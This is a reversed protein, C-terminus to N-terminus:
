NEILRKGFFNHSTLIKEKLFIEFVVLVLFYLRLCLFNVVKLVVVSEYFSLIYYRFKSKYNMKFSSCLKEIM